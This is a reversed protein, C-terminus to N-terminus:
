LQINRLETLLFGEPGKVRRFICQYGMYFKIHLLTVKLRLVLIENLFYAEGRVEFFTRDLTLWGTLFNFMFSWVLCMLIMASSNLSNLYQRGNYQISVIFYIHRHHPFMNESSVCCYVRVCKNFLISSKRGCMIVCHAFM